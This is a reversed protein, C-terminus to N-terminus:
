QYRSVKTVFDEGTADSEVSGRGYTAEIGIDSSEWLVVYPSVCTGAFADISVNNEGSNEWPGPFTRFTPTQLGERAVYGLKGDRRFRFSFTYNSGGDLAIASRLQFKQRQAAFVSEDRLKRFSCHSATSGDLKQINPNTNTFETRESTVFLGIRISQHKKDTFTVDPWNEYQRLVANWYNVSGFAGASVNVVCPEPIHTTLSAGPITLWHSYCLERPRCAFDDPVGDGNPDSIMGMAIGNSAFYSPNIGDEQWDWVFSPGPRGLLEMQMSMPHIEDNSPDVIGGANGRTVIERYLIDLFMGGPRVVSNGPERYPNNFTRVSELKGSTMIRVRFRDFRGIVDTARVNSKLYNQLAEFNGDVITVDLLDGLPTFSVPM